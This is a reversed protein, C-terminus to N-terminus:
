KYSETVLNEIEDPNIVKTFRVEKNRLNSLNEPAKANTMNELNVIADFDDEPAKGGLAAIVAKPFKFPSATSCIVTVNKDGTNKKYEEYVKFAVATH